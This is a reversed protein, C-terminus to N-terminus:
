KLGQRQMVDKKFAGFDQGNQQFVNNAMNTLGETDNNRYMSLVNQVMPNDKAQPMAAIRDLIAAPSFNSFLNNM